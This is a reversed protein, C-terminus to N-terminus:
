ETKEEKSEIAEIRASMSSLKEELADMRSMIDNIVSEATMIRNEHDELQCDTSDELDRNECDSIRKAYDELRKNISRIKDNLEKEHFPHYDLFAGLTKIRDKVKKKKM